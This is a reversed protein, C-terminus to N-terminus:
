GLISLSVLSALTSYVIAVGISDAKVKYQLALVFPMAGCPGAATLLLTKSWMLDLGGMWVFLLWLLLPHVIIKMATVLMAAGDPRAIDVEAVIIGLSFLAAPAAAKGAFTIFTHIGEHLEMGIFNVLLGLAMAALVPNRMVSVGIKLYSEGRHTAIEFGIIMGCFVIVTDIAIIASLPLVGQDGYLVTVIPLIFFVHNVFNSAMGLLISEPMSRKLWVRALIATVSFMTVESLLYLTIIKLDLQKLPASLTLYFILPPVAAYFVFRNIIQADGYDFVKRRGLVIGLLMIAFIPFIPNLFTHVLPPM